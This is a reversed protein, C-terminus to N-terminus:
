KTIHASLIDVLVSETVLVLATLPTQMVKPLPVAPVTKSLIPTALLVTVATWRLYVFVLLLPTGALANLVSAIGLAALTVGLSFGIITRAAGFRGKPRAVVSPQMSATVSVSSPDQVIDIKECSTKV